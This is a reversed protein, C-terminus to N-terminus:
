KQRVLGERRLEAAVATALEGVLAEVDEPNTTKSRGAWVLKNARLDYILTEISVHVDTRTTTMPPSAYVTSWGQGYYGGGWFGGYYPAGYYGGTTTTTTEKEAGLARFVVVAM